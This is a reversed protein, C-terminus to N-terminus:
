SLVRVVGKDGDVEVRAGDPIVTTARRTGAVCPIGFERSVIAPHSLIGGRDTVVGALMPLLVNYSPATMRAVLVDGPRVRDFDGPELVLRATGVCTGPSAALGSVTTDSETAVTDVEAEMAEEYRMAAQLLRRGAGEPIWEIPPPDLPAPGLIPPAVEGTADRRWRYWRVAEGTDINEGSLARALTALSLDLAAEAEDLVGREVLRRGAELGALRLAGFTATNRQACHDRLFYVSRAEEMLADFADRHEAPIRTRLRELAERGSADATSHWPNDVAARLTQLLTGPMERLTPYGASFGSTRHGIRGMWARLAAGADDDRAALNDLLAGADPPATEQLTAVLDPSARVEDALAMLEPLGEESQPSTGRLAQLIEAVSVDAWRSVHAILDGVPLIRSMNVRFHIRADDEAVTRCARLHAVLGSDDLTNIPVALLRTLEEEVAVAEALYAATEKRWLRERVAQESARLRRRIGPHLWCMLRFIARPPNSKPEPPGGFPRVCVYMFGNVLRMEITDLLLGYATVGERNGATFAEELVGWMIRPLPKECHSADFMWTGPSPKAFPVPPTLSVTNM